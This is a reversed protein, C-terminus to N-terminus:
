QDETESRALALRFGTVSGRPHVFRAPMYVLRADNHHSTYAPITTRRVRMRGTRPGVPNALPDETTVSNEYRGCWDSCWELSGPYFFIQWDNQRRLTSDVPSPDGNIFHDAYSNRADVARIAYEWEAQTPLRYLLGINSSLWRSLMMAVFFDVFALDTEEVFESDQSCLDRHSADFLNLQTKTVPMQQLSYQSLRVRHPADHPKDFAKYFSPPYIDNTSGIWFTLDDDTPNDIPPCKVFNRRYTPADIQEQTRKGLAVLEEDLVLQLAVPDGKEVLERFDKRYEQIIQQGRRLLQSCAPLERLHDPVRELLGWAHFMLETPRRHADEGNRIEVPAFLHAISSALVVDDFQLQPDDPLLALEIAFRWPWYWQRDAAYRRCTQDDSLEDVRVGDTSTSRPASDTRAWNALYLGCYYEMMGRHKFGLFGEHTRHLNAGDLIMYNTCGSVQEIEDWVTEANSNFPSTEGALREQVREQIAAVIPGHATYQYIQRSMMEFATAALVQRWQKKQREPTARGKIKEAARDLLRQEVQAYLECRTAFPRFKHRDPGTAMERVYSLVVPTQVLERIGEYNPFIHRLTSVIEDEDVVNPDFRRLGACGDLYQWQQRLSFGEIKAFVWKRGRFLLGYHNSVAFARSTVIWRVKDAVPQEPSLGSALSKILDDNGVQDLADVIVVLRENEIAWRVVDRTTVATQGPVKQVQKELQDLLSGPPPIQGAALTLEFDTPWNLKGQEFRVILAPKKNFLQAQGASSCLYAQLRRSFISKGMGADETLCLKTGRSLLNKLWVEPPDEPAAVLKYTPTTPGSAAEADDSDRVEFQRASTDKIDAAVQPDELVSYHPAVYHKLQDPDDPDRCCREWADLVKQSYAQLVAEMRANGTLLTFADEISNVYDITLGNPETPSNGSANKQAEHLVVKKIGKKVAAALKADISEIAVPGVDIGVLRAQYGARALGNQLKLELSVAADVNLEIRKTAAHIACLFVGGASSGQLKGVSPPVEPAIRITPQNGVSEATEARCWALEISDRMTQDVATFGLAVPDLYCGAIGNLDSRVVLEGIQGDYDCAGRIAAYLVKTKVEFPVDTKESDTAVQQDEKGTLYELLRAVTLFASISVKLNPDKIVEFLRDIVASPNRLTSSFGVSAEMEREPRLPWAAQYYGIALAAQEEFKRDDRTAFAHTAKVGALMGLLANAAQQYDEDTYAPFANKFRAIHEAPNLKSFSDFHQQGDADRLFDTLDGGYQRSFEMLVAPSYDRLGIRPSRENWLSLALTVDDVEVAM